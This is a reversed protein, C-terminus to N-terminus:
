DIIKPDDGFNNTINQWLLLDRRSYPYNLVNNNESSLQRDNKDYMKRLNFRKTTWKKEIM